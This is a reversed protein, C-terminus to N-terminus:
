KMGQPHQGTVGKNSKDKNGLPNWHYPLPLTVSKGPLIISLIKVQLGQAQECHNMAGYSANVM